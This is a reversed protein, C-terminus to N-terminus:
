RVGASYNSHNSRDFQQIWHEVDAVSTPNHQSIYLELKQQESQMYFIQNFINVLKKLMKHKRHVVHWRTTGPKTYHNVM